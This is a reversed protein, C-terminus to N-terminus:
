EADETEVKMGPNFNSHFWEMASYLKEPDETIPSRRILSRMGFGGGAADASRQPDEQLPAGSLLPGLSIQVRFVLRRAMTSLELLNQSAEDGRQRQQMLADAAGTILSIDDYCDFLLGQWLKRMQKRTVFPTSDLLLVSGRSSVIIWFLWRIRISLDEPIARDRAMAASRVGIRRAADKGDTEPPIVDHYLARCLLIALTKKMADQFTFNGLLPHQMVSGNNVGDKGGRAAPRAPSAGAGGAGGNSPDNTPYVLLNVLEAPCRRVLFTMVAVAVTEAPAGLEYPITGDTNVLPLSPLSMIMESVLLSKCRRNGGAQNIFDSLDVFLPLLETTTLSLQEQQQNHQQSRPPTTSARGFNARGRRTPSSVAGPVSVSASPVVELQALQEQVTHLWTARLIADYPSDSCRFAVGCGSPFLLPKFRHMSHYAPYRTTALSVALALGSTRLVLSEASLALIANTSVITHVDATLQKKPGISNSSTTADDGGGQSSPPPATSSSAARTPSSPDNNPRHHDTGSPSGGAASARGPRVLRLMVARLLLNFCIRAEATVGLSTISEYAASLLDPLLTVATDKDTSIVACLLSGYMDALHYNLQRLVLQIRPLALVGRTFATFAYFPELDTLNSLIAALFMYVRPSNVIPTNSRTRHNGLAFSSISTGPEMSRAGSTRRGTSNLGSMTAISAASPSPYARDSECSSVLMASSVQELAKSNHKIIDVLEGIRSLLANWVSSQVSGDLDGEHQLLFQMYTPCDPTLRWGDDSFRKVIAEIWQSGSMQPARAGGTAATVATTTSADGEDGTLGKMALSQAELPNVAEKVITSTHDAARVEVEFEFGSRGDEGTISVGGEEGDIASGEAHNHSRIPQISMKRKEVSSSTTTASGATIDPLNQLDGAFPAGRGGDARSGNGEGDQRMEDDFMAEETDKLNKYAEMTSKMQQALAGPNYVEMAVEAKRQPRADTIEKGTLLTYLQRLFSEAYSDKCVVMGDVVKSSLPVGNRTFYKTLLEWNERKSATSLNNRFANMDMDPWYASCIEAVLFGNSLDRKPFKIPHSLQLMQLWCIIERPIVTGERTAEYITSSPGVARIRAPQNRSM